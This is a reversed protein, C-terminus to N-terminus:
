TETLGNAEMDLLLVAATKGPKRFRERKRRIAAVARGTGLAIPSAFNRNTGPPALPLMLIQSKPNRTDSGRSSRQM